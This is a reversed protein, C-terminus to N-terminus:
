YYLYHRIFKHLKTTMNFIYFEKILRKHAYAYDFYRMEDHALKFVEVKIVILVCFRLDREDNDFYFLDNILKYLM